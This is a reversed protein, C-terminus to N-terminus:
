PLVCFEALQQLLREAAADPQRLQEATAGYIHQLDPLSLYRPDHLEALLAFRVKERERVAYLDYVQVALNQGSEPEPPSSLCGSAKSVALEGLYRQRKDVRWGAAELTAGMSAGARIAQHADNLSDPLDDAFESIALTRTIREDADFSYLSSVRLNGDQRLVEVGYSGFCAEIRESNLLPRLQEYAPCASGKAWTTQTPCFVMLLLCTAFLAGPGVKRLPLLSRM